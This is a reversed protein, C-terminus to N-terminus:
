LDTLISKYCYHVLICHQANIHPHAKLQHTFVYKGKSEIVNNDGIKLAQSVLLAM